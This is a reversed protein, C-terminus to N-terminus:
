RYYAEYDGVLLRYPAEDEGIAPFRNQPHYFLNDAHDDNVSSVEGIMVASGAEAYFTHFLDPPLTISEGPALVLKAGAKVTLIEGDRVVEVPTDGLGREGARNYLEFVLNGGGRNIIDERKLLHCHMPTVQESRSIMIKEAYAKPYDPHNMIGNRVTFLLLGCRAFDGSGFDTIDWGLNCDAIERVEAGRTRWEEPTWSAFRPLRFQFGAFFAEAGRILQNIESRKM